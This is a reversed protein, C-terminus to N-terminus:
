SYHVVCRCNVTEEASAGLSEDKPYMMESKGVLFSDFIGIKKENVIRHTHRVKSDNMTKWTKYKMGNRVAEIQQRYNGMSNAENESILMARDRSTFYEEESNEETVRVIEKSLNKAYIELYEAASSQNLFELAASIYKEYILYPYDMEKGSSFQLFFFLFIIEFKEALKIREEKEDEPIDMEGFYEEYDVSRRGAENLKDIGKPM